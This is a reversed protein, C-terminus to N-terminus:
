EVHEGVSSMARQALCNESIETGRHSFCNRASENEREMVDFFSLSTVFIEYVFMTPYHPSPLHRPLQITYLSGPMSGVQSIVVKMGANVQHYSKNNRENTCRYTM